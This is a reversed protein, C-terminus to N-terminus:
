APRQQLQGIDAAVEGEVSEIVDLHAEKDRFRIVADAM